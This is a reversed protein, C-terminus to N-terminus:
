DAFSAGTNTIFFDVAIYEIARAPKIFIKAYMINQDVLDPTTTTSDLVIRFDTVGFRAKVDALFPDARRVFTNWTAEVNPEFLIDKAILSIGRKVFILLRRVNIRDLASKTAQLTKQGFIVLGESPFSAIPNINADYLLDREDASLRYVSNVVTLGSNGLSLGGRNFGAPAFWPAQVNDTYSMAGIAVVSPPVNVIQGTTDDSIQVWPYYAAGYSSNLNRGKIEDVTLEPSKIRDSDSTIGDVLETEPVYSPQNDGGASLDIVALCDGREEAAQLLYLTLPEHVLGPVSIINTEIVEPDKVSDIARKYTNYIYSTQANSGVSIAKNRLPEKEFVNFGDTGGQFPSCFSNLKESNLLTLYTGTLATYSTNLAKSGSVYAYNVSGSSGTKVVEDLTFYWSYETATSAEGLVFEARETSGGPMRLLDGVADNYVFSGTTKTSKFGFSALKYNSLGDESSSVRTLTEPFSLKVSALASLSGTASGSPSIFGFGDLARKVFGYSSSGTVFDAWSKTQTKPKLPGFVGFPLQDSQSPDFSSNMEVRIYRSKNENNKQRILRQKSSDYTYYVDGIKRAIFDSSNPDLNCSTFSELPKRNNDVDRINRIVVDFTGFKVLDNLPPKINTIEVKLNNRTWDGGDLAIFRFLKDQAQPSYNTDNSGPGQLKSQRFFWGTRAAHTEPNTGLFDNYTQLPLIAAYVDTSVNTSTSATGNSGFSEANSYIQNEFSEGLWLGYKKTPGADSTDVNRPNTNFVKRIFNGSSQDFSFQFKKDTDKLDTAGSVYVTYKGSEAQLLVGNSQTASATSGALNGSLIPVSGSCYWIAALTGSLSTATSSASPFVFLGYAGNQTSTNPASIMWGSKGANNTSGVAQAGDDVGLLRVFNVTESNALWAQAAYAGYTPAANNGERWGDSSAGGGPVPEGFLEVFESYSSVKTPILAPGRKSRGVITPGIPAVARPIQSQDIEKLFVGPSVFKFKKVSM